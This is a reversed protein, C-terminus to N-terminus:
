SSTKNQDYHNDKNIKINWINSTNFIGKYEKCIQSGDNTQIPM